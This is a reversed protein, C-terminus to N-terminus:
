SNLKEGLTLRQKISAIIANIDVPQETAITVTAQLEEVTLPEHSAQQM